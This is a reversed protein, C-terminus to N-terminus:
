RAAEEIHVTRVPTASARVFAKWLTRVAWGLALAVALATLTIM